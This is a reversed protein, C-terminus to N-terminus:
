FTLFIAFTRLRFCGIKDTLSICASLFDTFFFLAALLSSRLFEQSSIPLSSSSVEENGILHEVVQAVNAGQRKERSGVQKHYLVAKLFDLM